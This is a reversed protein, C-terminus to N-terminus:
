KLNGKNRMYANFVTVIRGLVTKTMGMFKSINCKLKKNWDCYKRRREKSEHNM